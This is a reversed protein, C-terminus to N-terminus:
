SGPTANEARYKGLHQNLLQLINDSLKGESVLNKVFVDAKHRWATIDSPQPKVLKIGQKQLTQMAAINDRRNQKDMRKFQRGMSERVIAQDGPRLKSFVKKDIIFTGFLYFLPIDTIYKVQTHWQLIIAGIPSVTVTDILGAQLSVLVDGVPLSIPTISFAKVAEAATPDSDPVWVKRKRLDDLGHIKFKSMVYAFGGEAIGMAVFGNKEVGELLIKDMRQRVYDIEALSHFKAPLNYLLNDRYYPLLSGGTIAAGHLQGARIKRLVAVDSGMVGGPYFKIKVRGATKAAIEDAGERMSKMWFSGDPSLTAVKITQAYAAQCSLLFILFLRVVDIEGEGRAGRGPSLPIM